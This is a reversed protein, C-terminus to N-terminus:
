KKAPVRRRLEDFFNLLFVVENDRAPASASEVPALATLTSQASNTEQAHAHAPVSSPLDKSPPMSLVLERRRKHVNKKKYGNRSLHCRNESNVRLRAIRM